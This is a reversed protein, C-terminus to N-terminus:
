ALFREWIGSIKDFFGEKDPHDGWFVVSDLFLCVITSIGLVLGVILKIPLKKKM